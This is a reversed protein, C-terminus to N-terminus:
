NNIIYEMVENINLLKQERTEMNKITIKKEKLESEGIFIVFPIGLSNAYSIGERFGLLIEACINKSRFLNTVKFAEKQTNKNCVVLIKTNTKKSTDIYNGKNLLYFFRTLGFTIGVGQYKNTTYYDTLNDYRGGGCVSGLQPYDNLITEYVTGTYYDLGRAITLDIKYVDSKVGSAKLLIDVEQLEKLGEQFLSNQINLERLQELTNKKINIFSLIAKIKNEKIGITRLEEITKDVGLKEIKDLIRLVDSLKNKIDLYQFFGNLIKRNNIKITFNDFGLRKFLTSIVLPIEADFSIDLTGKGIVDIDCQYFERFRAAQSKEGRYVKGIAYRRFPFTLDNQYEAVYRALPVTLDFRMALDTQGKTFRYIQKDTDDGGKALLVEARELIPTDIPVFGYLEYTDKIITMMKNFQIQAEPKLEMFGSLPKTNIDNKM